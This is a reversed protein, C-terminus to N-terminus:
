KDFHISDFVKKFTQMNNTFNNESDTFTLTFLNEGRIWQFVYYKLRYKGEIKKKLDSKKLKYICNLFDTGQSNEYNEQVIIVYEYYPHFTQNLPVQRISSLGEASLVNMNLNEGSGLKAYTFLTWSKKPQRKSWDDPIDISFGYLSSHLTEAFSIHNGVPFVITFVFIFLTLIRKMTVRELNLLMVNSILPPYAAPM